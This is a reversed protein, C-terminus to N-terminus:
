RVTHDVTRYRPLSRTRAKEYVTTNQTESLLCILDQNRFTSSASFHNRGPAQDRGPHMISWVGFVLFSSLPKVRGPKSTPTMDVSSLGALSSFPELAELM